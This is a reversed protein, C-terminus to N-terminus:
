ISWIGISGWTLGTLFSYIGFFVGGLFLTAMVSRNGAVRVVGAFYL